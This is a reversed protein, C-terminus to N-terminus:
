NRNNNLAAICGDFTRYLRPSALHYIRPYTRTFGVQSENLNTVYKCNPKPLEADNLIADNWEELSCVRISLMIGNRGYIIIKRRTM